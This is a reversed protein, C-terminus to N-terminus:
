PRSPLGPECLVKQGHRRGEIVSVVQEGLMGDLVESTSARMDEYHVIHLERIRTSEDAWLNLYDIIKLLVGPHMVFDYIGIDAGHAPYGNLAKKGPRMRFKWQFFQSVAVDLHARVLLIVKSDYYDAKNNINGTYDKLYNDHSFFLKPIAKNKNHMNDFDILSNAKLGHKFSYFRSIMVRLWTRGSKGFSVIIADTQQLKCYEEHGRLWRNIRKEREKPLWFLLGVM